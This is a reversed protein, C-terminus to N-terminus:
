GQGPARNRSRDYEGPRFRQVLQRSNDQVYFACWNISRTGQTPAIDGVFKVFTLEYKYKLPIPHNALVYKFSMESSLTAHLTGKDPVMKLAIGVLSDGLYIM